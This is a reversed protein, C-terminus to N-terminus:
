RIRRSQNVPKPSEGLRRVDHAPIWDARLGEGAEMEWTVEVADRTWAIATALVDQEAGHQWRLRAIVPIGQEPRSISGRPIARLIRPVAPM